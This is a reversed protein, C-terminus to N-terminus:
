IRPDLLFNYSMEGLDKDALWTGKEVSRLHTDVTPLPFWPAFTAANLGCSTGNFVPRIDGNKDVYFYSILSKVTDQNLFRRTRFKGLKARMKPIDEPNKPDSQPVFYKPLQSRVFFVPDGDRADRECAYNGIHAAGWRWFHLRSGRGMGVM